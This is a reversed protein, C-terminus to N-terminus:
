NIEVGGVGTEINIDVKNTATEYGPTQYGSGSVPFRTTDIDVGALGSKVRISGAVGEPVHIKVSAAGSKVEVRTMGAQSPLTMETSSAGTELRLDVVKLDRLNLITESAGTHFYLQLVTQRNLDFRWEFGRTMGMMPVMYVEPRAKLTVKARSGERRVDKEVDGTVTGSLLEAPNDMAGIELRGAGHHIHFEAQEAGELSISIPGTSLPEHRWLVPGLLFWVGVLILALPWFYLWFNGPLLGLTNFLLIVGLLVIAVGWFLTNRRM